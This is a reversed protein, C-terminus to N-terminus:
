EIRKKQGDEYTYERQCPFCVLFEVPGKEDIWLLHGTCNDCYIETSHIPSTM